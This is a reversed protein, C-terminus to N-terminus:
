KMLIMKKTDVFDGAQIRYFYIGSPLSSADFKIEYSGPSKEEDVLKSVVKGQLTYVTLLVKSRVPVAYRIKTTPNFPNPFNNSLNYSHPFEEINKAETILYSYTYKDINIWESGGWEQIIEETLDNDANYAYLVRGGNEWVNVDWMQRIREIRNNNVDYSYLYRLFNIGVSSQVLFEILNNNVDYYYYGRFVDNWMNNQWGQDLEEILKNEADYSYINRWSNEWQNNSWVIHTKIEILSGDEQYIRQISSSSQFKDFTQSVSLSCFLFLATLFSSSITKM